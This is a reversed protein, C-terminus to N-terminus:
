FIFIYSPLSSTYKIYIHVYFMLINKDNFPTATKNKNQQTYLLKKNSRIKKAFKYTFAIYLSKFMNFPKRM